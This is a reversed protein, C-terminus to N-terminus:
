FNGNVVRLLYALEKSDPELQLGRQLIAKAEDPNGQKFSARAALAAYHAAPWVTKGPQYDKAHDLIGKLSALANSQDLTRGYLLTAEDIYLQKLLLNTQVGPAAWVLLSANPPRFVCPMVRDGVTFPRTDGGFCNDLYLQLQANGSGCLHHFLPDLDKFDLQSLVEDKWRPAIEMQWTREDYNLFDDIGGRSLYLYFAKPAEYDLVPHDDTHLPGPGAIAFATRRSAFQRALVTEPTMLGISALDARPQTLAFVKRYIEPGTDWAQQSGLLIIDNDGLDWIEMRPFVSAFTRLVLFLTQDDMEYIHFWQTMLGGPKLRSAALQYFERSFVSAVGALWPNSPEAIIADYKQSSLKLVTRADDHYIHTRDNTYVGHNWQAFLRAAELVPECNEAITLNTVPYDLVTGATIGSGMGFCFVDTSGPRAMTPRDQTASADAKGNIRLVLDENGDAMPDSEVSVTADAADRYFLLKVGHRRFDFFTKLPSVPGSFDMDDLRFIGGSLISRWDDGGNMSAFLLGITVATALGGILLRRNFLAIVLVAGALLFGLVAFAGRLGIQPMLIFGTVLVGVVAGLTNWTVLRGVRRGLDHASGDGSRMMLPLVAGLCGAPLGLVVISLLGVFLQHFWYGAITRTLGSQAYLYISTIGKLDFVLLALAGAPVLLLLAILVERSITRWRPSAVAASGLGIGLIFSMLVLAFVQLSAGFVLALCRTALVELSMSVAGTAAVLLCEWGAVGTAPTLSAPAAGDSDAGTDSSLDRRTNALVLAAVGVILNLLAACDLTMRLGLWPVLLLGSLGAGCVAGLSNTSYFRATRRGADPTTKQLWAALLPLTGGMAITPGLLLAVSMLGKFWLLCVPHDLLNAGMAAFCHEAARYLLSFAAAYLAVCIELCGYLFLPQRAQDARRGFLQNGLALGAMFVALVVTQAQITSGFLLSLYKSWIVEYVLATAGSCFFLLLILLIM